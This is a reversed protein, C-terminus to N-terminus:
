AWLTTRRTQDTDFALVHQASLRSWSSFSSSSVALLESSRAQLGLFFTYSERADTHANSRLIRTFLADKRPCRHTSKQSSWRAVNSWRVFNLRAAERSELYCCRSSRKVSHVAWFLRSRVYLRRSKICKNKSNAVRSHVATIQQHQYNLFNTKGRIDSDGAPAPLQPLRNERPGFCKRIRRCYGRRANM